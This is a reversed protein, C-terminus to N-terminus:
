NWPKVIAPGSPPFTVRYFVGKPAIACAVMFETRGYADDDLRHAVVVRPCGYGGREVQRMLNEIIAPNTVETAALQEAGGTMIITVCVVIAKCSM